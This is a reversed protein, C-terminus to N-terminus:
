HKVLTQESIVHPMSGYSKPRQPCVGAARMGAVGGYMNIATESSGAVGGHV